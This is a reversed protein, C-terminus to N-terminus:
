GCFRLPLTSREILEGWDPSPFLRSLDANGKKIAEEKSWSEGIQPHFCPYPIAVRRMGRSSEILEGWDPSPFRRKFRLSWFRLFTKEGKSWSEGIQPHFCNKGFLNNLFNMLIKKRDVGGLRPISVVHYIDGWLLHGLNLKSEILEGWDPSPFVKRPLIMTSIGRREILEGWDPSPFLM